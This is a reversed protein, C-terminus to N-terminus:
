VLQVGADPDVNATPLVANVQLARSAAFCVAVHVECTVTLVGGGAGAGGRSDSVHGAGVTTEVFPFGIATGSAGLGTPPTAGYWDLQEGEEPEANATPLVGIVHTATSAAFCVADQVECTTTVAGGGGSDIM